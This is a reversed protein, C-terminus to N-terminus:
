NGQIPAGGVVPCSKRICSSLRQSNMRSFNSGNTLKKPLRELSMMLEQNVTRTSCKRPGNSLLLVTWKSVYKTVITQGVASLSADSISAEDLMDQWQNGLYQKNDKLGIGQVHDEVMDRITGGVGIFRTNM